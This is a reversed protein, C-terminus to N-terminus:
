TNHAITPSGAEIWVATGRPNPNSFTIGQITTDEVTLISVNQQAWTPSLFSGGGVILIDKGQQEVNGQLTIGPTLQLPFREGSNRDYTGSGLQIVHGPQARSLAHTITKFPQEPTSTNRRDLGKTPNVYHITTQTATQSPSQSTTEPTAPTAADATTALPEGSEVTGLLQGLAYRAQVTQGASLARGVRRYIQANTLFQGDDCQLVYRVDRQLEPPQNERFTDDRRDDIAQATPREPLTPWWIGQDDPGIINIGEPKEANRNELTKSGFSEIRHRGSESRFQESFYAVNWTYTATAIAGDCPTQSVAEGRPTCSASAIAVVSAVLSASVRARRNSGLSRATTKARRNHSPQLSMVEGTPITPQNGLLHHAIKSKYL